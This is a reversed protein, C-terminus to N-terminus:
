RSPLLDGRGYHSVGKLPKREDRALNAQEVALARRALRNRLEIEIASKAASSKGGAVFNRADGARSATMKAGLKKAGSTVAATAIAAPIGGVGFALGSAATGAFASKPGFGMRGITELINSASTHNAVRDIMFLEERSFQKTKRNERVIKRFENKIVQEESSGRQKADELAREIRESKRRMKFAERAEKYPSNAVTDDLHRQLTKAFQGDATMNGKLGISDQAIEGLTQRFREIDYMTPPPANGKRVTNFVDKMEDLAQSSKTHQGRITKDFTGGFGRKAGEGNMKRVLAQLNRPDIKAKTMLADATAYANASDSVLTKTDKTASNYISRNTAGKFGASVGGGILAAAARAYPEAETGKTAQGAAESAVAPVVTMVAKRGISGPGAVASPAFEGVTRAFEGPLTHPEYFKGTVQEAAGQVDGGSPLYSTPNVASFVKGANKGDYGLKGAAYEVGMQTLDAIDRPMGLVGAVGSGVGSVVSKGIDEAYTSAAVEGAGLGLDGKGATNFERAAEQPSAVPAKQEPAAKAGYKSWPGVGTSQPEKFSGYKLWPEGM